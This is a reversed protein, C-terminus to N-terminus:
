SAVLLSSDSILFSFLTENLVYGQPPPESGSAAVVDCTIEIHSTVGQVSYSEIRPSIISLSGVGFFFM